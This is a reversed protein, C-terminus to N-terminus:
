RYPLGPSIKGSAEASELLAQLDQPLPSSAGGNGIFKKFLELKQKVYLNQDLFYDGSANTSFRIGLYWALIGGNEISYENRLKSRFKEIEIESKGATIIDDVYTAVLLLSDDKGRVYLCPDAQSQSFGQSVLFTHMVANWERPSQKLGYLTKVLKLTKNPPCNFGEPPDMYISEKLIGKLFASPVDDQYVKLKLIASLAIIGRISKFKAVPAFTEIFDLGYRQTFGKAVLRAKFKLINGNVDFKKVFVWRSKIPKQHRDPDTIIWTSNKQISELEKEIAKKWNPWDSTAKAQQITQPMNEIVSLNCQMILDSSGLNNDEFVLATLLDIDDIDQIHNLNTEEQDSEGDTDHIHNLNTEEQDSEGDSSSIQNEIEEGGSDIGPATYFFDTDTDNSSRTDLFEFDELQNDEQFDDSDQLCTM